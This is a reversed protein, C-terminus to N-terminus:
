AAIIRKQTLQSFREESRKFRIYTELDKKIYDDVKRIAHRVTSHDRGGFSRGTKPLSFDTGEYLIKMAIARPQAIRQTKGVGELEKISIRFEEAVIMKIAQAKALNDFLAEAERM